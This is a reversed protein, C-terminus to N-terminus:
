KKSLLTGAVVLVERVEHKTVLGEKMYPDKSVFERAVAESDSEFMLEGGDVPNQYAGIWVLVGRETFENALALHGARFPTRRTAMDPVYKYRLLFHKARQSIAALM